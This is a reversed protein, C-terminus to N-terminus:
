TVAASRLSWMLIRYQSAAISITISTTYKKKLLRGMKLAM